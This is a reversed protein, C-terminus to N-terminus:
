VRLAGQPLYEKARCRNFLICLISSMHRIDLRDQWRRSAYIRWCSPSWICASPLAYGSCIAHSSASSWCPPLRLCSDAAKLPLRQLCLSDLRPALLPSRPHYNCCDWLYQSHRVQLLRRTFPIHPCDLISEAHLKGVEPEVIQYSTVVMGPQPITSAAKVPIGTSHLSSHPFAHSSLVEDPCVLIHSHM